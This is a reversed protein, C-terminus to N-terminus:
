VVDLTWVSSNYIFQLQDDLVQVDTHHPGYSFMAVSNLIIEGVTYRM